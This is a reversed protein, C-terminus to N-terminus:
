PQSLVPLRTCIGLPLFPQTGLPIKLHRLKASASLKARWEESKVKGKLAASRKALTEPSPRKGFQPNKDGIKSASLKARAQDSQRLGKHAAGMKARTEASFPKRRKWASVMKSRTVESHKAGYRPHAQGSGSGEGGPTTNVLDCGQEKFFLIYAAEAAQWESHAVEDVIELTPELREALLSRIWNAKHTRERKNDWM